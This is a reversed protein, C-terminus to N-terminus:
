APPPGPDAELRTRTEEIASHFAEPSTLYFHVRANLYSQVQERLDEDVPNLVAVM